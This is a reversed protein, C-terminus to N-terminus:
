LEVLDGNVCLMKPIDIEAREIIPVDMVYLQVGDNRYDLWVVTGGPCVLARLECYHEPHVYFRRPSKGYHAKKHNLRAQALM